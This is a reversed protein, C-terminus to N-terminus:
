TKYFALFFFRIMAFHWACSGGFSLEAAYSYFFSFIIHYKIHSNSIYIFSYYLTAMLICVICSRMYIWVFIVRQVCSRINCTYFRAPTAKHVYRTRTCCALKIGQSSISWLHFSHPENEALAATFLLCLVFPILKYSNFAFTSFM